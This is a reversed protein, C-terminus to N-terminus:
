LLSEKKQPGVDSPDAFPDSDDLLAHRGLAEESATAQHNLSRYSKGKGGPSASRARQVIRNHTEEDSSKYDSFDSLSGRGPIEEEDSDPSLPTLAAQLRQPQSDFNVLDQLDPHVQTSSSGLERDRQIQAKTVAAKQKEQLKTLESRLVNDESLTTRAM